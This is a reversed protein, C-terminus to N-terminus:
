GRTVAKYTHFIVFCIWLYYIGLGITSPLYVDYFLVLTALMFLNLLIAVYLAALSNERRFFLVTFTLGLFIQTLLLAWIWGPHPRDRLRLHLLTIFLSKFLFMFVWLIKFIM